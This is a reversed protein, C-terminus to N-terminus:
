RGGREDDTSALTSDDTGLKSHARSSSAYTTSENEDFLVDDSNRSGNRSGSRSTSARTKNKTPRGPAKVFEAVGSLSGTAPKPARLPVRYFDGIEEEEDGGLATEYAHNAHNATAGATSKSLPLSRYSGKRLHSAYSYLLVIFYIKFLWSIIIVAAATGKEQNWIAMAAAEREEPTLTSNAKGIDM